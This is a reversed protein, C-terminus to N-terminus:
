NLLIKLNRIKVFRFYTEKWEAIVFIDVGDKEYFYAFCKKPDVGAKEIYRKYAMEDKNKLTLSSFQGIKNMLKIAQVPLISDKIAFEVEKKMMEETVKKHHLLKDISQYDRKDFADSLELL